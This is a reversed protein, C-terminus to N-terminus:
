VFMALSDVSSDYRVGCRLLMVIDEETVVAALEEVDVDLFIEDHEAASVMYAKGSVLEDLRIFACIDPRKCKPNKVRKFAVYEISEGSSYKEFLAKMEDLTM